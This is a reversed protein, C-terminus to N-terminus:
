RREEAFSELSDLGAERGIEGRLRVRDLLGRYADERLGFCQRAVGSKTTILATGARISHIGIGLGAGVTAGIAAVGLPLLYVGPGVYIVVATGIAFGVAFGVGAGGAVIRGFQKDIKLLKEAYEEKIGKYQRELRDLEQIASTILMLSAIDDFSARTRGGRSLAGIHWLVDAYRCQVRVWCQEASYGGKRASPAMSVVSLRLRPLANVLRHKENNLFRPLSVPREFLASEALAALRASSLSFSDPAAVAPPHVHADPGTEVVRATAALHASVLAERSRVEFAAWLVTTPILDRRERQGSSPSEQTYCSFLRDGFLTGVWRTREDVGESGPLGSRSSRGDASVLPKLGGLAQGAPVESLRNMMSQWKVDPLSCAEALKEETWSTRVARAHADSLYQQGALRRGLSENMRDPGETARVDDPSAPIGFFPPTTKPLYVSLSRRESRFIVDSKRREQGAVRKNKASDRHSEDLEALVSGWSRVGLDIGFIAHTWRGVLDAAQWVGVKLPHSSALVAPQGLLRQVKAVHAYAATPGVLIREGPGWTLVIPLRARGGDLMLTIEKSGGLLGGPRKGLRFLQRAETLAEKDISHRNSLSALFSEAIERQAPLRFSISPSKAGMHCFVSATTALVDGCRQLVERSSAAEHRRPAVPPAAIATVVPTM